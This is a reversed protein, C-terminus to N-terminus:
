LTKETLIETREVTEMPIVEKFNFGYKVLYSLMERRANRTKLVIRRYGNEKAWKEQYEMMAKLVGQGRFKPDVGAMWCYLAGQGYRERDEYSVLYGAPEGDVFGAIVLHDKGIIREQFRAKDYPENFEVVKASVSVAQEVPVEKVVIEKLM